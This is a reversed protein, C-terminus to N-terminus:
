VTLTVAIIERCSNLQRTNYLANVKLIVTYLIVLYLHVCELFSNVTDTNDPTNLLLLLLCCCATSSSAM